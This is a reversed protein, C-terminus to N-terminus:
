FSACVRQAKCSSRMVQMTFTALPGFKESKDPELTDIVQIHKTSSRSREVFKLFRPCYLLLRRLTQALIVDWVRLGACFRLTARLDDIMM